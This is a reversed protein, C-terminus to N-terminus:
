TFRDQEEVTRTRARRPEGIPLMGQRLKRALVQSQGGIKDAIPSAGMQLRRGLPHPCPHPQPHILHHVQQVRQLDLASVEDSVGQASRHCELKQHFRWLAKVFDNQHGQPLM